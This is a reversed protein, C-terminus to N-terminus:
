LSHGQQAIQAWLFDVFVFEKGNYDLVKGKYDIICLSIRYAMSILYNRIHWFEDDKSFDVLGGHALYPRARNWVRKHESNIVGAEILHNMRNSTSPTNLMSLLGKARSKLDESGEWKEVYHILDQIKSYREKNEDMNKPTEFIHNICNEIFLSLSILFGQVTGRSALLVEFFGRSLQLFDFQNLEACKKLYSLFVEWTNKKIIPSGFFVPPMASMRVEPTERIFILADNEFHRITIRPYIMKATSFILAEAIWNETYPPSFGNRHKAKVSTKARDSSEQFTITSDNFFIEHHDNWVKTSIVEDGHFRKEHVNGSFPLDLSGIYVLETIDVEKDGDIKNIRTAIQAFQGTIIFNDKQFFNIEPVSWAGNWKVGDYDEALLKVNVAETNEASHIKKIFDFTDKTVPLQNYLKFSLKGSSSGSIIGPGKFLIPQNDKFPHIEIDHCDMEFIKGSYKEILSSIFVLKNVRKTHGVPQEPAAHKEGDVAAALNPLEFTRLQETM